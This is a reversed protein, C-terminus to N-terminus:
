EMSSVLIRYDGASLTFKGSQKGSIKEERVTEGDKQIEIMQNTELSLNVRATSGEPIKMSYIINNQDVRKWNSIIQGYPSHYSCNVSDLGEPTAPNLVFEEFGPFDPDPRIGGLWRYFWETVTGFMPHNNSFTNDSERWTEWITSAGRDIMHGWGPYETSNVIDYVREPSEYESLAELIYKTGFIGTNFHGSPGNKVAQLLSDRAAHNESAPVVEHYLLASFL